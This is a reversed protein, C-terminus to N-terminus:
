ASGAHRKRDAEDLHYGVEDHDVDLRRTRPHAADALDPDDSKAVSAFAEGPLRQDVRAVLEMRDVGTNVPDGRMVDRTSGGEGVDVRDDDPVQTIPDRDRMRREVLTREGGRATDVIALHDLRPPEVADPHCPPRPGFEGVVLQAAQRAEEPEIVAVVVCQAVRARRSPHHHPRDLM